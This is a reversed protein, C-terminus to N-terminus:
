STVVFICVKAIGLNLKYRLTIIVHPSAAGNDVQLNLGETLIM